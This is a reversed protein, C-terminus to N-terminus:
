ETLNRINNIMLRLSDRLVKYSFYRSAVQYNHEVLSERHEGDELIRRTDKVVQRDVFGDIAPLCIGKPEIDRVYVSYRGIVVPKRFYIAELLANGFGEYLSPFTVLDAHPYLDDLVYIKRGNGNLQRRDAVRDGFLHMEVGEDPALDELQRCYDLGEDGAAHSVVLKCRRDRLRQILHISQEIGKRPVLRTPQLVLLDGPELGIEAPVDAAYDDPPPPPNEFDFVNPVL